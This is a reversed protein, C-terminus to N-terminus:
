QALRKEAQEEAKFIVKTVANGIIGKIWETTASEGNGAYAFWAVNACAEVIPDLSSVFYDEGDEAEDTDIVYIKSADRNSYIAYGVAGFQMVDGTLQKALADRKEITMEM